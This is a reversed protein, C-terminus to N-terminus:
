KLTLAAYLEAVLNELQQIRQEQSQVTNQLQEVDSVYAIKNAQEGTQGAEQVTPRVGAPTNLNIPFTPNGFDMVGWRNLQIASHTKGDPGTVLIIDGMTPLIIAKRNPLNQDAVDQWEVDDSDEDKIMQKLADVDDQHKKSLTDINGQLIADQSVRNNTETQLDVIVKELKNKDEATMVGAETSTAAPITIINQNEGTYKKQADKYKYTHVIKFVSADTQPQENVRINDPFTDIQDQIAKDADKRDQIEQALAQGQTQELAAIADKRDQIEKDINSQLINDQAERQASEQALDNELKDVQDQLVQDADKRDQIEKEIIKTLDTLTTNLTDYNKQLGQIM